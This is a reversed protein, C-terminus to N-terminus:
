KKAKKVTLVSKGSKSGSKATITAKGKAKKNVKVVITKIATKGAAVSVKVSKPLTVKKNTSKLAVTASGATQGSNTVAVKLKVTKGAKVTAKGPTVAVKGVAFPTPKVEPTCNPPTGVQGAPCKPPDIEGTVTSTGKMWISGDFSEANQGALIAGILMQCMGEPTDGIDKVDEVTVDTWSGIVSGNGAAFPAASLVNPAEVTGFDKSGSTSLPINLPSIQCAATNPVSVTLSLPLQGSFVGSSKNYNGTIDDIADITLTITGIDGAEIVQDPFNFDSAKALFAGDAALSGTLDVKVPEAAAPDLAHFSGTDGLADVKIWSDDFSLKLSQAASANATGFASFALVAFLAVFAAKLKTSVRRSRGTTERM